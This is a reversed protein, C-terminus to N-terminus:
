KWCKKWYKDRLLSKILLQDEGRFAEKSNEMIEVAYPVLKIYLINALIKYTTFLLPDARYNDCIM